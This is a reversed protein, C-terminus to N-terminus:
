DHDTLRHCLINRHRKNVILLNSFFRQEAHTEETVETERNFLRPIPNDQHRPLIRGSQMLLFADTTQSRRPRCGIRDLLHAIARSTLTRHPGGQRVPWLDILRELIDGPFRLKAQM